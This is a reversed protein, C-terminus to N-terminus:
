IDLKDKKFLSKWYKLSHEEDKYKHNVYARNNPNFKLENCVQLVTLKKNAM